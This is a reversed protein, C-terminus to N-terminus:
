KRGIVIPSAKEWFPLELRKADKFGRESLIQKLESETFVCGKDTALFMNLAFLLPHAPATREDNPMFEAIVLRGGPKLAAFCEGLLEVSADRGESHLIHGLLILDYASRELKVERWGGQLWNYQGAVQFRSAFEETVKLVPEFDLADIKIKSNSRALPISWVASGAALDLVRSGAPLKATELSNALMEATSFNLPFIQAALKPFFDQAQCEENVQMVSKGKRLADTLGNWCDHMRETSLIFNGMFYPSSPLLYHRAVDALEYKGNKKDLLELGVMADLLMGIGRVDAKVAAAVLETTNEDREIASFVDLEVASKLAQLAWSGFLIASIRVPPVVAKNQVLTM